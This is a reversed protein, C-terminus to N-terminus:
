SVQFADVTSVKLENANAVTSISERNERPIGPAQPVNDGRGAGGSDRNVGPLMGSEVM